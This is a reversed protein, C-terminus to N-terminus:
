KRLAKLELLEKSPPGNNEEETYISGKVHKKSEFTNIDPPIRPRPFQSYGELKDPRPIYMKEASKRSLSNPSSAKLRDNSKEQAYAQRQRFNMKGSCRLDHQKFYQGNSNINQTCIDRHTKPVPKGHNAGLEM